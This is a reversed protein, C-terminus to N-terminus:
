RRPPAAAQDAVEAVESATLWPMDGHITHKLAAMAGGTRVGLHLDDRLLGYLLGAAFCDGAVFRDVEECPIGVWRAEEEGRIALSGEEGLTLAVVESGFRDRARRAAEPPPGEIDFLLQLDKLSSVLVDAQKLLPELAQAAEVPTWLMARYNVDFSVRSRGAHAEALARRALRACDESLAPTIGSLHVFRAQRFASWDVEDEHLDNIAAQKRDYYVRISGARRLYEVFYLGVRGAATWKVLSMDVGHRRGSDAILRGLPSDPLKSVWATRVGLRALAVVTDFEAGGTDVQLQTARELPVDYAPWLRVMVEGLGIVEPPLVPADEESSTM